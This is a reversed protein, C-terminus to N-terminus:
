SKYILKNSGTENKKDNSDALFRFFSVAVPMNAWTETTAMSLCAFM